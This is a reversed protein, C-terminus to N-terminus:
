AGSAKEDPIPTRIIKGALITLILAVAVLPYIAVLNLAAVAFDRHIRRADLGFGKLRRAFHRRALILIMTIAVMAGICLILHDFYSNQWDPLEPLNREKVYTLVVLVALWVLLPIFPMYVPMNNRRPQSHALAKRGLSTRLLWVALLIMGPLCIIVDTITITTVVQKIIEFINTAKEGQNKNKKFLEITM